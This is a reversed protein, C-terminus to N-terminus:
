IEKGRRFVARCCLTGIMCVVAECGIAALNNGSLDILATPIDAFIDTMILVIVLMAGLIDAAGSNLRRRLILSIGSASYLLLFQKFFYLVTILFIDSFACLLASFLAPILTTATSCFLANGAQKGTLYGFYGQRSNFRSIILERRPINSTIFIIALIIKMLCCLAVFLPFPNFSFERLGSKELYLIRLLDASNSTHSCVSSIGLLECAATLVIYLYRKM